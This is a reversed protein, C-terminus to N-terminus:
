FNDFFSSGSSEGELIDVFPSLELCFYTNFWIKM